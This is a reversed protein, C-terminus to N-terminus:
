AIAVQAAVTGVSAPDIASERAAAVGEIVLVVETVLVAAIASAAEIAEIVLVVEIVLAGATASAAVIGATASAEETELVAVIVSVAATMVGCIAGKDVLTENRQESVIRYPIVVRLAESGTQPEGIATLRAEVIRPITNGSAEGSM